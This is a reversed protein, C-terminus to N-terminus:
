LEAEQPTEGKKSPALAKKATALAKEVTPLHILGELKFIKGPPKRIASLSASGLLIDKAIPEEQLWGKYSGREAEITAIMYDTPELPTPNEIEFNDIDMEATAITQAIDRVVWPFQERAKIFREQEQMFRNLGVFKAERPIRQQTIQVMETLSDLQRTQWNLGAWCLGALVLSAILVLTGNKEQFTPINVWTETALPLSSLHRIRANIDTATEAEWNTYITVETAKPYTKLIEQVDKVWSFKTTPVIYSDKIDWHFILDAAIVINLTNPDAPPMRCMDLLPMSGLSHRLIEAAEPDDDDEEQALFTYPDVPANDLERPAFFMLAMRRRTQEDTVDQWNDGFISDENRELVLEVKGLGVVCLNRFRSGVTQKAAHKFFEKM